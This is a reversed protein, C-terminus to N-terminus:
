VAPGALATFRSLHDVGIRESEDSTLSYSLTVFHVAASASDVVTDYAALPLSSEHESRVTLSPRSDPSLKLFLPSEFLGSIQRHMHLDRANPQM